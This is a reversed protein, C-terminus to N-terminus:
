NQGWEMISNKTKFSSLYPKYNGSACMASKIAHLV